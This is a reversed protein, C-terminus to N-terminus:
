NRNGDRMCVLITKIVLETDEPGRVSITEVGAEIAQNDNGGPFLADGVHVMEKLSIDLIDRLKRIGYAKDIGAKTIDISTWGGIRVSFEPILADLV